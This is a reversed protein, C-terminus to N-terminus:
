FVFAAPRELGPLVPVSADFLARDGFDSHSHTIIVHEVKALQDVSLAFGLSGADIAITENVLFTTLWM